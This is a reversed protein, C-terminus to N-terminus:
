ISRINSVVTVAQAYSAHSQVILVAQVILIVLISPIFQVPASSTICTSTVASAFLVPHATAGTIEYSSTPVAPLRM